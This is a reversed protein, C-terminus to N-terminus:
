KGSMLKILDALTTQRPTFIDAAGAGIANYMNQSSNIANTAAQPAAGSYASLGGFGALRDKEQGLRSYLQDTSYKQLETLANGSGTPNGRTSLSRALMDTGQQVPIRVEDSNLFSSPNSYLDSLRQRYPAGMASYKDALATLEGTQQNSAYAGLAAPIVGGLLSSLTIGQGSGSNGLINNLGALGATGGLGSSTSNTPPSYPSVNTNYTPAEWWPVTPNENYSQVSDAWSTQPSSNSLDIQSYPSSYNTLNMDLYSAPDNMYSNLWDDSNAMKHETQPSSNSLNIQGFPLSDNTLKMNLSSDTGGLGSSLGALGSGLLGGTANSLVPSMPQQPQSQQPSLLSSLPKLSTNLLSSLGASGIDGGQIGASVTSGVLNKLLPNDFNSAASTGGLSGIGSLLAKSPDQGSLMGIGAKGATSALQAPSIGALGASPNSSLNSGVYKGLGAGLGGLAAGKLINGGTLGSTAGGIIAGAGASGLLGGGLASGLGPLLFNGAVGLALPAIKDLLGGGADPNWGNGPLNGVSSSPVFYEGGTPAAGGSLLKGDPTMAGPTNYIANLQNQANPYFDSGPAIGLVKNYPTTKNVDSNAYFMAGNPNSHYARMAADDMGPLRETLPLIKFGTSPKAKELM